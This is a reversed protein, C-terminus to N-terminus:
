NLNNLIAEFKGTMEESLNDLVSVDTRDASRIENSWPIAGLFKCNPLANKIFAKDNESNIKNAVVAINKLNIESCMKFIRNACDISNQGPEVVIIMCDIGRTTARGLHEIGAEMDMILVDDKFMILDTVLARVLVNEPCACGGGGRKVAGTVLLNVGNHKVAFDGAIDSVEPNLKFIQGYQNIKAGTREEVLEKHRAIPVIKNQEERSFGLCNALNADPDADLALVKKNNRALLIALAAAISSKGVGGKGSIAIKM